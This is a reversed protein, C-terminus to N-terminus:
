FFLSSRSAMEVFAQFLRRSAESGPDKEPHWQIGIAKPYGSMEIGEITGDPSRANVLLDKGLEKVAQHHTSSVEFELMGGLIGALASDPVVQVIHRAPESEEMGRHQIPGPMQSVIDQYLTGGFAVNMIQMGHCIALVPKGSELAGRLINLDFDTRQNPSLSMPATIEEGYYSPHIDAGGTLVLGDILAVAEAIMGPKLLSPFHVPLGGSEEVAKAYALPLFNIFSESKSSLELTIGIRPRTRPGRLHVLNCL